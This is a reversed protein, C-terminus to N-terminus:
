RVSSMFFVSHKWETRVNGGSLVFLETKREPESIVDNPPPSPLRVGTRFNKRM